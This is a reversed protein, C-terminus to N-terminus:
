DLLRSGTLREHERGAFRDTMGAIYDAIARPLDLRAAFGSQMQAPDACYAQFLERVVQKARVTTQSVQPHRYLNHWLFGKLQASRDRMPASFRVLPELNRVQEPSAPGAQM